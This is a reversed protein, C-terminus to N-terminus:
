AAPRGRALVLGQEVAAAVVVEGGERRGAGVQVAAPVGGVVAEQDAAAVAGVASLGARGRPRAHGDLDVGGADGAQRRLGGGGELHGRAARRAHHPLDRAAAQTSPVGVATCVVTVQGAAVVVATVRVAVTVSLVPWVALAAEGSVKEAAARRVTVTPVATSPVVPVYVPQVPARVGTVPVTRSEALPRGTSPTPTCSSRRVLVVVAVVAAEATVVTAPVAVARGARASPWSHLARLRRTPGNSAPGAPVSTSTRVPAQEAVTVRCAPAVLAQAPSRTTKEPVAARVVAPPTDVAIGSPLTESSCVWAPLM